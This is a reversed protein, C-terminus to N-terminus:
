IEHICFVVSFYAFWFMIGVTVYCDPDSITVAWCKCLGVWTRPWSGASDDSTRCTNHLFLHPCCWFPCSMSIFTINWATCPMHHTTCPHSPTHIWFPVSLLYRTRTFYRSGSNCYYGTVNCYMLNWKGCFCLLSLHSLIIAFSKCIRLM